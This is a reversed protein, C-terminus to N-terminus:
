RYDRGLRKSGASATDCYVVTHQPLGVKGKNKPMNDAQSSPANCDSPTHELAAEDGKQTGKTHSLSLTSSLLSLTNTPLVNLRSLAKTATVTPDPTM